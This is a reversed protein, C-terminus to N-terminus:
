PSPKSERLTRGIESAWRWPHPPLSTAPAPDKWKIPQPDLLIFAASTPLVGQGWESGRGSGDGHPCGPCSGFSAGPRAPQAPAPLSPHIADGPGRCSPLPHTWLLRVRTWAWELGTAVAVTAPESLTASVAAALQAIAPPLHAVGGEAARGAGQPVGRGRCQPRRSPPALSAPGYRRM